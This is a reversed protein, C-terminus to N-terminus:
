TKLLRDIQVHLEGILNECDGSITERCAVELQHVTHDLAPVGCSSTSGHLKHTHEWLGRWNGESFATEIASLSLPLEHLLQKYMEDALNRDGGTVSLAKENDRAPLTEGAPPTRRAIRQQEVPSRMADDSLMSEITNWM